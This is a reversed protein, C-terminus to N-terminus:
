LIRRRCCEALLTSDIMGDHPKKSKLTALFSERPFLRRVIELARVKPDIKVGASNKEKSGKFMQKQWEQPPILTYPIELSILIGQLQGFHNGYNFMSSVGQRPMAQAKELFVHKIQYAKHIRSLLARFEYIDPMPLMLKNEGERDLFTVGGKLGPDIGGYLAM